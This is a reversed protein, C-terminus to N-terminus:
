CTKNESTSWFMHWQLRVLIEVSGLPLQLRGVDASTTHTDHTDSLAMAILLAGHNLSLDITFFSMSDDNFM